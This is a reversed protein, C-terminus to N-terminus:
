TDDGDINRGDRAEAQPLSTIMVNEEAAQVGGRARRRLPAPLAATFDVIGHWGGRRMSALGWAVVGAV